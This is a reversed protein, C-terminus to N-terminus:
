CIVHHNKAVFERIIKKMRSNTAFLFYFSAIIIFYLGTRFFTVAKTNNRENIKTLIIEVFFLVQM